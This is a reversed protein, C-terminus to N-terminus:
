REAIAVVCWFTICLWRHPANPWSNLAARTRGPTHHLSPHTHTNSHTRVRRITPFPLYWIGCRARKDFARKWIRIRQRPLERVWWMCVDMYDKLCLRKGERICMLRRQSAVKRGMMYVRAYMACAFELCASAYIRQIPTLAKPCVERRRRRRRHAYLRRKRQAGGTSCRPAADM